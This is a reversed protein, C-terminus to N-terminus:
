MKDIEAFWVLFHYCCRHLWFFWIWVSLPHRAVVRQCSTTLELVCRNVILENVKEEPIGLESLVFFNKQLVFRRVPFQFPSGSVPLLNERFHSLSSEFHRCRNRNRPLRSWYDCHHFPSCLLGTYLMIFKLKWTLQEGNWRCLAPPRRLMLIATSIILGM